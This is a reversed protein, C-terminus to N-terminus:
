PILSNSDLHLLWLIRIRKLLQHLDILTFDLAQDLLEMLYPIIWLKDEKEVEEKTLTEESCIVLHKDLLVLIQLLAWLHCAVQPLNSHLSTQSPRSLFNVIRTSILRVKVEEALCEMWLTKLATEMLKRDMWTFQQKVLTANRRDLSPKALLGELCTLKVKHLSLLHIILKANNIPMDERLQTLCLHLCRDVMQLMWRSSIWRSLM